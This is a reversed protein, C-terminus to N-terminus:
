GAYSSNRPSGGKSTLRRIFARVIHRFGFRLGCGIERLAARRHGKLSLEGIAQRLSGGLYLSNTWALGDKYAARYQVDRHRRLVRVSAAYMKAADQSVNATHHRYETVVAAHGAVRYRKATRLYLDWDESLPLDEAFGGLALLRDRRYMVAGHMGIVNGKLLDSFTLDTGPAPKRVVPARDPFIDLYGGFVFGCDENGAFFAVGDAIANPLLVDDVDLFVVYEGGAARLGTNRAASLGANPQWIYRPIKLPEALAKTDDTSGDDIVILDIEQYSQERVSKVADAIFRRGNFTTIVVSVKPDGGVSFPRDSDVAVSQGAMAIPPEEVRVMTKPSKGVAAKDDISRRV